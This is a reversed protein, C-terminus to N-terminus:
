FTDPWPKSIHLLRLAVMPEDAAAQQLVVVYHPLLVLELTGQVRGAPLVAPHATAEALKVDLEKDWEQAINEAQQALATYIAQRDTLAQAQWVLEM